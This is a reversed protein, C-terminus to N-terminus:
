ICLVYLNRVKGGRLSGFAPSEMGLVGLLMYLIDGSLIEGWWLGFQFKPLIFYEHYDKRFRMWFWFAPLGYGQFQARGQSWLLCSLVESGAFMVSTCELWMLSSRRCVFVRRMISRFVPVEALVKSCLMHYVWFNDENHPVRSLLKGWVSLCDM